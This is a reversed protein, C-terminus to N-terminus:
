SHLQSKLKILEQALVCVQGQVLGHFHEPNDSLSTFLELDREADGDEVPGM